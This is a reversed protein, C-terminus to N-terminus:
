NLGFRGKLSNYNQEVENLTLGRNYVQISSLYVPPSPLAEGSGNLSYPLSTTNSNPTVTNSGILKGNVYFSNTLTNRTLVVNYWKNSSIPTNFYFDIGGIIVYLSNLISYNLLVGLGTGGGNGIYTLYHYTTNVGNWNFWVSQTSNDPTLSLSPNLTQGTGDFPLYGNNSRNFVPLTSGTFTITGNKGNGSLDTITIGSQPYSILNGCDLYMTLGSTVIPPTGFFSQKINVSM